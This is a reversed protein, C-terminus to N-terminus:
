PHGEYEVVARMVADVEPHPVPQWKADFIWGRHDVWFVAGDIMVYRRTSNPRTDSIRVQM